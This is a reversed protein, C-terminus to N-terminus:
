DSMFKVSEFLEVISAQHIQFPALKKKSADSLSLKVTNKNSKSESYLWIEKEIKTLKQFALERFSTCGFHLFKICKVFKIEDVKFKDDTCVLCLM